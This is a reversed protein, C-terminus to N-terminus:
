ERSHAQTWKMDADHLKYTYAQDCVEQKMREKRDLEREEETKPVHMLSNVDNEEPPVLTSRNKKVKGKKHSVGATSARAKANYRERTPPM